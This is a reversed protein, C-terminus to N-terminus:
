CSRHTERDAELRYGEMERNRQPGGPIVAPIYGSRKAQKATDHRTVRLNGDGTTEGLTYRKWVGRTNGRQPPRPSREPLSRTTPERGYTEGDTVIGYTEVDM